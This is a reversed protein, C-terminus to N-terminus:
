PLLLGRQCLVGVGAALARLQDPSQESTGGVDAQAEYERAQLEIVVAQDVSGSRAAVWESRERRPSRTARPAAGGSMRMWREPSRPRPRRRSVRRVYGTSLRRSYTPSSSRFTVAIVADVAADHGPVAKAENLPDSFGPVPVRDTAEAAVVVALAKEASFGAPGDRIPIQWDRLTGTDRLGTTKFSM